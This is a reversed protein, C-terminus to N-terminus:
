SAAARTTLSQQTGAANVFLLASGCVPQLLVLPELWHIKTVLDDREGSLLYM